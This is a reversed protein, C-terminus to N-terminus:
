AVGLEAAVRDLEAATAARGAVAEARLGDRRARVHTDVTQLGRYRDANPAPLGARVAAVDAARLARRHARLRPLM